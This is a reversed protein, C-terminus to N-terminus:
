INNIRYRSQAGPSMHIIGPLYSIGFTLFFHIVITINYVFLLCFLCVCNKYTHGAIRDRLM